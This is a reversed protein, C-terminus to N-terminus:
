ISLRASCVEHETYTKDDTATLQIGHMLGLLLCNIKKEFFSGIVTLKVILVKMCLTTVIMMLVTLQM